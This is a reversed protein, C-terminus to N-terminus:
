LGFLFDELGGDHGEGVGFSIPVVGPLEDAFEGLQIRCRVFGM